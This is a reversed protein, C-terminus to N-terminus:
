IIIDKNRERESKGMEITPDRKLEKYSAPTLKQKM